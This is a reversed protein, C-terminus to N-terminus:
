KCAASDEDPQLLVSAVLLKKQEAIVMKSWEKGIWNAKQGTRNKLLEKIGRYSNCQKEANNSSPM